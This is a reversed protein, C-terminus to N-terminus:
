GMGFEDMNVKGGMIAGAKELHEIATATYPAKFDIFILIFIIFFSTLSNEIQKSSNDTFKPCKVNGALMDSSCTTRLDTTCFNM